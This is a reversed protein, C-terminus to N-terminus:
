GRNRPGYKGGRKKSGQTTARNFKVALNHDKVELADVVVSADHDLCSLVANVLHRSHLGGIIGIKVTKRPDHSDTM